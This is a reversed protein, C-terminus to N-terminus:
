RGAGADRGGGDTVTASGIRSRAGHSQIAAIRASSGSTVPDFPHVHATPVPAAFTMPNRGFEERLAPLRHFAKMTTTPASPAGRSADTRCTPRQRPSIESRASAAALRLKVDNASTRTVGAASHPGFPAQAPLAAGHIARVVDPAIAGADLARLVDDPELSAGGTSSARLLISASPM